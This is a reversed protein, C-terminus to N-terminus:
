LYPSVKNPKDGSRSQPALKQVRDHLHEAQVQIYDEVDDWDKGRPSYSQPAKHRGDCEQGKEALDEQREM